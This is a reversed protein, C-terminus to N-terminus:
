PATRPTVGWAFHNFDVEPVHRLTVVKSGDADMLCM